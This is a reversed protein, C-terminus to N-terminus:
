VRSENMAQKARVKVCLYTLPGKIEKFWHPTGNPIVVVDGKVLRSSEGGQISSGRRENPKVEKADFVTGGTVLLAEGEQMYFIDTDLDHIEATGPADRRSAHVQYDGVNLLIGGEAFSGAVEKAPFYSVEDKYVM